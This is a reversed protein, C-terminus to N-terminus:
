CGFCQDPVNHAVTSDISNVPLTTYLGGGQATIGHDATLTNHTVTSDTLTLQVSPPGGFIASNWIGGGQAMGSPGHVTGTNKRVTTDQLTLLGINWIGAGQVIAFGSATTASLANDRIVSDAITTRPNGATSLAGGSASATGSPSSARVSNGTFSSDRIDSPGNLEGVGSDAFASGSSGPTTTASVRNGSMTDDSLVVPGDAHLGGSFAAADGITNTASVSNGAITTHRIAGSATGVIHVGGAIAQLNVSNPLAASLDASNDTVVSEDMTLTGGGAFVGGSDAFRGNPATAGAHNDSIECDNLVLTGTAQSMIGAGEADSALTSLGSASGVLNHSVTTNTLTLSGWNDIGGGAARAFPCPGAPCVANGSPVTASPAARNGTVVSNAIRVTAGPGNASLPIEIGGGFALVGATGTFPISEPSSRAVGGTITVGAISVTPESPANYSGITLVSDGGKIITSRAGAGIISISVDITVGGAFTGPGIRITDGALAADVAAQLKSFCGPGSGVCLSQAALVHGATFGAAGTAIVSACAVGILRRTM